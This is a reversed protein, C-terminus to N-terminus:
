KETKNVAIRDIKLLLEKLKEVDSSEVGPIPESQFMFLMAIPVRFETALRNLFALSPERKDSEILSLYNPSIKLKLALDRQRIGRATRILKIANGLTLFTGRFVLLPLNVFFV